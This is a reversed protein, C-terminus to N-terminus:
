TGQGLVLEAGTVEGDGETAPEPEEAPADLEVGEISIRANGNENGLFTGTITLSCGDGTEKQEFYNSLAEDDAINLIAIDTETKM